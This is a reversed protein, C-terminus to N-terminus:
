TRLLKPDLVYENLLHEIEEDVKVQFEAQAVILSYNTLEEDLTYILINVAGLHVIRKRIMKLQAMRFSAQAKDKIAEATKARATQRLTEIFNIHILPSLDAQKLLSKFWNKLLQMAVEKIIQEPNNTCGTEDYRKRHEENSLITYAENIQKFIEEFEKGAVDPHYKKCLDRYAHKIQDQDADKPVGLIEYFSRNNFQTMFGGYNFSSSITIYAM